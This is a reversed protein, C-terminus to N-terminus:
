EGIHGRERNVKDRRDLMGRREDGADARESKRLNSLM